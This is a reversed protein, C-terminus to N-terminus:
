EAPTTSGFFRSNADVQAPNLHFGVLVRYGAGDEGPKISFQPQIPSSIRQQTSGNEFDVPVEYIKKLIVNDAKDLVSVFFPLSAHTSSSAVGKMAVIDIMANVAVGAANASCGGRVNGMRATLVLNNEDAAPPNQYVSLDRIVAVQPCGSTSSPGSSSALPTDDGSWDTAGNWASDMTDCSSLALALFPLALLSLRKMM